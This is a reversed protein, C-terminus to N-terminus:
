SPALAALMTPVDVVVELRVALGDKFEWLHVLPVDFRRGTSKTAGYTRGIVAVRDSGDILREIAVHNDIYTAIREFFLKAEELGRFVGGWPIEPSQTVHIEPSV